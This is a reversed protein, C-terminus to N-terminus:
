AKNTGTREQEYAKHIAPAYQPNKEVVSEIPYHWAMGVKKGEILGRTKQMRLCDATLNKKTVKSFWAASRKDQAPINATRAKTDLQPPTPAGADSRAAEDQRRKAVGEIIRLVDAVEVDGKLMTEPSIGARTAETLLEGYEGPWAMGYEAEWQRVAEAFLPAMAKLRAQARALAAQTKPDKKAIRAFAKGANSM